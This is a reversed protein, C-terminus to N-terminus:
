YDESPTYLASSFRKIKIRNWRMIMKTSYDTNLYGSLLGTHPYLHCVLWGNGSTYVSLPFLALQLPRNVGYYIFVVSFSLSIFLHGKKSIENTKKKVLNVIVCKYSSYIIIVLIAGAENALDGWTEDSKGRTWKMECNSLICSIHPPLTVAVFPFILFYMVAFICYFLSHFLLKQSADSLQTEKMEWPRWGRTYIRAKCRWM